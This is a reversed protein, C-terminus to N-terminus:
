GVRLLDYPKSDMPEDEYDTEPLPSGLVLGDIPMYRYVISMYGFADAGHSYRDHAPKDIFVTHEETTKAKNVERKYHDLCEVGKEADMSFKCKNLLSRVAQIREAISHKEVIFVDEHRRLRRLIDLRTTITKGQLRQKADHPLYHGAYSYKKDTLIESYHEVGEGTNAYYDVLNISDKNFQVFWIATDDSIGLDWFTYVCQTKDYLTDIERRGAKLADSMLSAYYSGEIDYDEHSNMVYRNYKKRSTKKLTRWNKLTFEPIYEVNEWPKGESYIYGDEKTLRTKSNIWRKWIWNHGCANAIVIIQRVPLGLKEIITEEIADRRKKSLTEFHHRYGRLLGLSMLQKQVKRNPTLVRRVRGILMEFIDPSELEDAQEIGAWGLNMGQIGDRFEDMNECHAFHIVSEKGGECPIIITKRQEPVRIGTWTTFDRITSRSLANYQKRIILGENGPYLMSLYMGKMIMNLTKGDGWPGVRCPFPEVANFFPKQFEQPSFTIPEDSMGVVMKEMFGIYMQVSASILNEGLSICATVVCKGIVHTICEELAHFGASGQFVM